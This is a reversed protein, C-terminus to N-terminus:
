GSKTRCSGRKQSWYKFCWCPGADLWLAEESGPKGLSGSARLAACNSGPLQLPGFQGGGGSTSQLTDSPPLTTASINGAFYVKSTFAAGLQVFSKMTNGM